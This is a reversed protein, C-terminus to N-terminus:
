CPYSELLQFKRDIAAKGVSEPLAVPPRGFGCPPDNKRRCSSVDSSHVQRLMARILRSVKRSQTEMAALRTALSHKGGHRSLGDALAAAEKASMFEAPNSDAL